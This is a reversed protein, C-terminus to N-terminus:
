AASLMAHHRGRRRRRGDLVLGEHVSSWDLDQGTFWDVLVALTPAYQHQLHALADLPHRPPRPVWLRIRTTAPDLFQSWWSQRPARNCQRRDEATYIDRFDLSRGILSSILAPWKEVPSAVLLGFASNANCGKLEVEVRTVLNAAFGQELGKDYVRTYTNSERSGFSIGDGLPAPQDDMHQPVLRDSLDRRWKRFPGVAFGLETCDRVHDVTFRDSDRYGDIRSCTVLPGFLARADVCLRHLSDPRMGDLASQPLDLQYGANDPKPWLKV